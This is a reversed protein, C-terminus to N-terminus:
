VLLASSSFGYSRGSPFPAGALPDRYCLPILRPPSYSCREVHLMSSRCTLKLDHGPFFRVFWWTKSVGRLHMQLVLCGALVVGFVILGLVLLYTGRAVFIDVPFLFPHGVLVGQLGRPIFLRVSSM